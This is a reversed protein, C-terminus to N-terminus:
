LETELFKKLKRDIIKLANSGRTIQSISVHYEEAIERQTLKEESLAKIILCRSALLEKEELTLFLNLLNELDKPTQVKCCLNLFEQWGKIM